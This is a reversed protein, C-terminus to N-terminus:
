GRRDLSSLMQDERYREDVDRVGGVLRRLMADQNEWIPKAEAVLGCSGSQESILKGRVAVEGQDHVCKLLIRKRIGCGRSIVKLSPDIARWALQRVSHLLHVRRHRTDLRKLDAKSLDERQSWHQHIHSYLGM